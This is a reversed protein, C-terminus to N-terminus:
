QLLMSGSYVGHEMFLFVGYEYRYIGTLDEDIKLIKVPQNEPLNATFDNSFTGGYRACTAVSGQPVNIDSVL